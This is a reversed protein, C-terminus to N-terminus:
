EYVHLEVEDTRVSKLSTLVVHFLNFVAKVVCLARRPVLAKTGNM